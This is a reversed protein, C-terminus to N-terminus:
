LINIVIRIRELIMLLVRYIAINSNRYELVEKPLYLMILVVIANVIVAKM